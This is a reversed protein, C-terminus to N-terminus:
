SVSLTGWSARVVESRARVRLDHFIFFDCDNLGVIDRPLAVKVHDGGDIFEDQEVVHLVGPAVPAVAILDLCWLPRLPEGNRDLHLAFVELGDAFRFYVTGVPCFRVPLGDGLVVATRRMEFFNGGQELREVPMALVGM